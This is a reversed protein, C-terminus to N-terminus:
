DEGRHPEENLRKHLRKGCRFHPLRKEGLKVPAGSRPNRAIRAPRAKVSFAGFGRLEVRGGKALTQSIIEIIKSIAQEANRKNSLKHRATLREVLESRIM